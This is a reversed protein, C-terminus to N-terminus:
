RRTFHEPGLPDLVEVYFWFCLVKIDQGCDDEKKNVSSRCHIYLFLETV